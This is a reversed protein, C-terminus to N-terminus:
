ESKGNEIYKIIESRQYYWTNGAKKGILENSKRRNWFWTTGKSLIAKAEKETIFDGLTENKESEHICVKEFISNVKAKFEEIDEFPILVFKLKQKM